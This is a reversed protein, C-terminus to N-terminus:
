EEETWVAQKMKTFIENREADVANPIRSRPMTNRFFSPRKGHWTSNLARGSSTCPKLPKTLTKAKLKQFTELLHDLRHHDQSYFTLISEQTM